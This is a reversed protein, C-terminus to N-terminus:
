YGGPVVFTQQMEAFLVDAVLGAGPGETQTAAGNEFGAIGTLPLSSSHLPGRRGLIHGLVDSTSDTYFNSREITSM